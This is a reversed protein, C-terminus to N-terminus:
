GIPTAYGYILFREQMKNLISSPKDMIGEEVALVARQIVLLQSIKIFRSLILTYAYADQFISKKKNIRLIAFFGVVVSKFLDRRLIHDLLSIYFLLCAQNLASLKSQITNDLLPGPLRAATAATITATTTITSATNEYLQHSLQV